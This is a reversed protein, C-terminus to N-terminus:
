ASKINWNWERMGFFELDERSKGGYLSFSETKEVKERWVLFFKVCVSYRSLIVYFPSIVM